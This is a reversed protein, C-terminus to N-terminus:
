TGDTPQPVRVLQDVPLGRRRLRDVIQQYTGDPLSRERALIWLWKGGRSAVASWKYHPDLELIRYEASFPWFLQVQWEANTQPNTVWAVGDWRQEKAAFSGKRFLFDAQLRGDPRRAYVDATAVKGREFVNPVHAIVNWRGLYRELDVNPVTTLSPTPMTACGGLGVALAALFLFSRM